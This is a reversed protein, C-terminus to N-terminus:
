AGARIDRSTQIFKNLRDISYFHYRMFMKLKFDKVLDSVQIRDTQFEVEFEDKTFSVSTEEEWGNRLLDERIEQVTM